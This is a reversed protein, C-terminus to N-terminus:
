AFCYQQGSLLVQVIEHIM